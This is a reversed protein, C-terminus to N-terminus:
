ENCHGHDLLCTWIDVSNRYSGASIMDYKQYIKFSENPFRRECLKVGLLLSNCSVETHPM